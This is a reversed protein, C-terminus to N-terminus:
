ATQQLGVYPHDANITTRRLLRRETAPFDTRAHNTCRNDWMVFDGPIWAHEYVVVARETFDFLEALLADSEARAMGVIHDTMLRSVYLATRGSEHHVLFVPREKRGSLTDAEPKAVDTTGAYYRHVVRAGALGAKLNEPLMEYAAYLNAFLTNGGRSPIEVAYLLTYKYPQAAYAGDSHFMMEGDPLSGIPKGNERINSVLMLGERVRDSEPVPTKRQRSGLNGFYESFRIQDAEDLTQGPFVLVLHEVWAAKIQAVCGADLKRTLDVGTIRAGLAGPIKEVTLVM